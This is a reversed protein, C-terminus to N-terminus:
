EIRRARQEGNQHLILESVEEGDDAPFEIEADVVALFFRTTSAPFLRLEPQGSAQATLLGDRLRIQIVLGPRLEYRGVYRELTSESVEVPIRVERLPHAPDLLHFGVDDVSENSNSLVVVGATKDATFGIFSRYGGTGGNHWIVTAAEGQSIHWGLGVSM